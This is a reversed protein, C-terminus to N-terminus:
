RPVLRSWTSRGGPFNRSHLECMDHICCQGAVQSNVCGEEGSRRLNSVVDHTCRPTGTARSRTVWELVCANAWPSTDPIARRTTAQTQNRRRTTRTTKTTNRKQSPNPNRPKKGTRSTTAVRTSAKQNIDKGARQRGTGRKELISDSEALGETNLKQANETKQKANTGATGSSM